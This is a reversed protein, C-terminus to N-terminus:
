INDLSENLVELKKNLTEYFNERKKNDKLVKDILKNIDLFIDDNIEIRNFNWLECKSYCDYTEDMTTQQTFRFQGNVEVFIPINENEFENTHRYGMHIRYHEETMEEIKYIADDINNIVEEQYAYMNLVENIRLFFYSSIDKYGYYHLKVIMNTNM